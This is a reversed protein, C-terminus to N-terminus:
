AATGDAAGELGRLPEVELVGNSPEDVCKAIRGLPIVGTVRYRPNGDPHLESGLDAAM